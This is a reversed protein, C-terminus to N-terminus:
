SYRLYHVTLSNGSGGVMEAEGSGREVVRRVYEWFLATQASRSVSAYLSRLHSLAWCLALIKLTSSPVTVPFYLLITIFSFVWTQIHAKNAMLIIEEPSCLFWNSFQVPNLIILHGLADNLLLSTFCATERFMEPTLETRLTLSLFVHLATSFKNDM